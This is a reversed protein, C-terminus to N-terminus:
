SAKSVQFNGKDLNNVQAKKKMWQVLKTNTPLKDLQVNVKQTLNLNLRKREEQIKRAMERVYAEEELEPTLKTDLEIKEKGEFFTIEKINLEEMGIKIIDKNSVETEGFIKVNKLPQRVPVGAMKREAHVKEVINRMIQMEALVNNEKVGLVKAKPWDSLHVSEEKTLNTFLVDSLFPMFPAMLGSLVQLTHYTTQYFADRDNESEAAPGVRDRSRRIYWTSLDDVFNEISTSGSFADYKELSSTVSEILQNLRAIIWQDLVNKSQVRHKASVSPNWGDLNAYTVLFNYVNWLKLHFRRRVEDAVHYGFLMNESPNQRSYIWRMVDVGMKEAGEIFEISNGKSKHMGQGKEDLLTAYGLVTKFPNIDEMVTSMAILSYFWNKFQGPFSETIFDVPFWKAWEKKDTLYLPKTKTVNFNAAKNNESITSFGVIGADLWPNGVPEIRSMIQGCKSCRIRVMDIQPKHPTKKEFDKWGEVARTKLEEKSGIVEFNGCNKCEWVPLALGWYRNKKSILWDHMNNLWDMERDLGFGPIWKIKGAVTKMRERLTRTDPLKQPEDGDDWKSNEIKQAKSIKASQDM